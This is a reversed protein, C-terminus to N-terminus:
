EKALHVVRCLRTLRRHKNIAQISFTISRVFSSKFVIYLLKRVGLQKWHQLQKQKIKINFSHKLNM